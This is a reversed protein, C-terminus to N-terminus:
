AVRAARGLQEDGAPGFASEFERRTIVGDNDTDILSFLDYPNSQSVKLIEGLGCMSRGGGSRHGASSAGAAAATAFGTRCSYTQSYTESDECATGFRPSVGAEVRPRKATAESADGDQTGFANEFESRSIVGDKDTDIMSFLDGFGGSVKSLSGVGVKAIGGGNCHGALSTAATATAHGTRRSYTESGVRAAGLRSSSGAEVRPRQAMAAAADGYAMAVRASLERPQRGSWIGSWPRKRLEAMPPASIREWIWANEDPRATTWVVRFGIQGNGGDVQEYIASSEHDWIYATSTPAHWYKATRTAVDVIWDTSIRETSIDEIEVQESPSQQHPSGEVDPRAATDVRPPDPPTAPQPVEAHGVPSGEHPALDVHEGDAAHWADLLSSVLFSGFWVLAWLLLALLGYLFCAELASYLSPPLGQLVASAALPDPQSLGIMADLVDEASPDQGSAQMQDRLRAFVDKPKRGPLSGYRWWVAWRNLVSKIGSVDVRTGTLAKAKQTALSCLAIDRYESCSDGQICSCGHLAGRLSLISSQPLEGFAATCLEFAEGHMATNAAQPDSRSGVMTWFLDNCCCVFAAIAAWVAVTWPNLWMPSAPESDEPCRQEM